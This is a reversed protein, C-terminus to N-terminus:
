PPGIGKGNLFPRARESALYKLFSEAAFRGRTAPTLVGYAKIEMQLEKPLPGAVEVGEVSALETALSIGADADGAAVARAVDEGSGKIPKLRSTLDAEIGAKRAAQLVFTGIPPGAAPDTVAVSGVHRLTEQFAQLTGIDMSPTGTKKGFAIFTSGVDVKSSMDIRNSSRLDEVDVNSPLLVVDFPEGAALKQKMAGPTAITITVKHGGSREFDPALAPVTARFMGTSLVRLEAGFVNSASTASVLLAIVFAPKQIFRM